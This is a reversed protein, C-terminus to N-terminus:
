TKTLRGTGIEEVMRRVRDAMSTAHGGMQQQQMLGALTQGWCVSGFRNGQEDWDGVWILHHKTIHGFRGGGEGGAGIIGLHVKPPRGVLGWNDWPFVSREDLGERSLICM